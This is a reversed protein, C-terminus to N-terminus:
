RAINAPTGSIAVMMNRRAIWLKSGIALPMIIINVSMMTEIYM